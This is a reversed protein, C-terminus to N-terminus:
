VLFFSFNYVLLSYPSPENTRRHDTSGFGNPENYNCQNQLLSSPELSSIDLIRNDIANITKQWRENEPKIKFNM